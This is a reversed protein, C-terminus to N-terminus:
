KQSAEVKEAAELLKRGIITIKKDQNSKICAVITKQNTM